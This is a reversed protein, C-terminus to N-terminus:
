QQDLRVFCSLKLAKLLACDVVSTSGTANAKLAVEYSTGNTCRVSWYAENDKPDLGMFFSDKGSCRDGSSTVVVGLAAARSGADLNSLMNHAVNATSTATPPATTPVSGKSKSSNELWNFLLVVLGVGVIIKATM